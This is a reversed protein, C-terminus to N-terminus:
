TAFPKDSSTEAYAISAALPATLGSRPYIETVGAKRQEEYDKLASLLDFKLAEMSDLLRVARVMAAAADEGETQMLCLAASYPAGLTEWANAAVSHEGFM